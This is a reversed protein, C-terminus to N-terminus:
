DREEEEEAIRKEAQRMRRRIGPPEPLPSSPFGSSPTVEEEKEKILEEEVSKGLKREEMLREYEKEKAEPILLNLKDVLDESEKPELPIVVDRRHILRLKAHGAKDVDASDIDKLHVHLPAFLGLIAGVTRKLGPENELAEEIENKISGKLDVTLLDEYLKVTFNPKDIQLAIEKDSM